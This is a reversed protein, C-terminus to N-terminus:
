RLRTRDDWIPYLLRYDGFGTEDVFIYRRNIDYYEWVEYPKVDPDFPHRDIYSPPGYIIYIMGRDTKWGDIYHKFHLNAYAVRNYYETMVENAETEPTPDRRKWFMEFRRRKEKDNPANQLSDMEESTAIYRLQEIAEDLNTISVPTGFSLWEVIIPKSASAFKGTRSTDGQRHIEVTLTYSGIGLNSNSIHSIFTNRGEKLYTTDTKELLIRSRSSRILYKVEVPQSRFPNFVEFFVDFGKKFEGVNPSVNPTLVTKGNKKKIRSVIMLDSMAVLNPDYQKVKLTQSLTFENGSEKDEFTVELIIDDPDLPFRHMSIDFKEKGRTEEFKNKVLTRRWTAEKILTNATRKIRATIMYGAKYRGDEVIFSIIDYPIKVYVDLQTSIGTSDISPFNLADVYFPRQRLMFEQGPHEHTQAGATGLSFIVLVIFLEKRKM